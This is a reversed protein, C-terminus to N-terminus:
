FILRFELVKGSSPDLLLLEDPAVFALSARTDASGSSLAIRAGLDQEFFPEGNLTWVLLRPPAADFCFLYRESAVLSVPNKAQLGSSGPQGWFGLFDGRPSFKLIHSNSSDAVFLSGDPAVALAVPARVQASGARGRAVVRVFRGRDNYEAVAGLSTDAVYLNEEGDVALAAPARFRGLGGAHQEHDPDGTPGFVLVRGSRGDAAYIEGDSDVAIAVPNTVRPDDFALLPHGDATFKHLFGSGADAIYVLGRADSTIAVALDLNAPGEGRTGWEGLFEIRRRSEAPRTLADASSQAARAAHLLRPAVAWLLAATACLAIASAPARAKM